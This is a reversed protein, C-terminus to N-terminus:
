RSEPGLPCFANVQSDFPVREGSQIADQCRTWWDSSQLRADRLAYAGEIRHKPSKAHFNTTNVGNNYSEQQLLPKVHYNAPMGAFSAGTASLLTITAITAVQHIKM